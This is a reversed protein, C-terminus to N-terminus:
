ACTLSVHACSTGLRQVQHTLVDARKPDIENAVVVGHPINDANWLMMELIQCTKSGPAACMDLVSHEPKVELCLPPIMSVAECLCRMTPKHGYIAM